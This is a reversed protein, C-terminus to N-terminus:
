KLRFAQGPSEVAGSQAAAVYTRQSAALVTAPCGGANLHRNWVVPVVVPVGRRLQTVRSAADNLCAGSNWALQSGHTVMVRLSKPGIGFACTANDTSVVDIQFTPMDHPGYSAKSPLLTLVIDAVPCISAAATARGTGSASSASSAATGSPAARAASRASRAPSTTPSAPAGSALGSSTASPAPSTVGPKAVPLTAAGSGYAAAAAKGAQATGTTQPTPRGGVLGSCAWILLGVVGLGGVLAFFRRRWYADAAANQDGNRQANPDM